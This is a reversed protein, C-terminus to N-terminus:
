RGVLRVLAGIIRNLRAVRGPDLAPVYGFARAVELCSLVERTVSPFGKPDSGSRASPIRAARRDFDIRSIM